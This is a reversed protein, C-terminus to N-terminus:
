IMIITLSMLALISVLAVVAILIMLVVINEITMLVEIAIVTVLDMLIIVVILAVLAVLTGLTVLAMFVVIAVITVMIVRTMIAFMAMLTRLAMITLIDVIAVLVMEAISTELAVFFNFCFSTIFYSCNKLVFWFGISNFSFHFIFLYFSHDVFCSLFIVLLIYFSIISIQGLFLYENKKPGADPLMLDKYEVHFIVILNVKQIHVLTIKFLTNLLNLWFYFFGLWHHITLYCIENYIFSLITILFSFDPLM